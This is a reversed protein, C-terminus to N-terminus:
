EKGGNKGEWGEKKGEVMELQETGDKGRSRFRSRFLSSYNKKKLFTEQAIM